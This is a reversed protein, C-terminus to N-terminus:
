RLNVIIRTDGIYESEKRIKGEEMWKILDAKVFLIKGDRKIHEIKRKSTLSYLTSESFLTFKSAERVTMYEPNEQELKEIRQMLERYQYDSM